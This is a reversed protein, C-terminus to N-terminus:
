KKRDIDIKDKNNNNNKNKMVSLIDNTTVYGMGNKDFM